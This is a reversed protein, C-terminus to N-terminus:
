RRKNITIIRKPTQFTPSSQVKQEEKESESVTEGSRKVLGFRVYLLRSMRAYDDEVSAELPILDLTSLLCFVQAAGRDTRYFEERTIGAAWLLAARKMDRGAEGALASMSGAGSASLAEIRHNPISLLVDLYDVNTQVAVRTRDGLDLYAVDTMVPVDQGFEDEMAEYRVPSLRARELTYPSGPVSDALDEGLYVYENM